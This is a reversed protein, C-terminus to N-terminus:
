VELFATLEQELELSSTAEFLTALAPELLLLEEARGGVYGQLITEARRFHKPVDPSCYLYAMLLAKLLAETLVDPESRDTPDSLEFAPELLVALM